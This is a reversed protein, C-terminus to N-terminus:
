AQTPQGLQLNGCDDKWCEMPVPASTSSKASLDDAVGNEARPIHQLDLAEFDKGLKHAHLLYAALQPDNCSCDGKVQEVILQADGKV